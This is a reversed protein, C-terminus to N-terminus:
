VCAHSSIQMCMGSKIDIMFILKTMHESQSFKSCNLMSAVYCLMVSKPCSLFFITGYVKSANIEDIM